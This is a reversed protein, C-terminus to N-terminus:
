GVESAAAEPTYIRVASGLVRIRNCRVGYGVGSHGVAPVGSRGVATRERSRSLRAIRVRPAARGSQFAPKEEPGTLVDARLRARAGDFTAGSAPVHGAAHQGTGLRGWRHAY